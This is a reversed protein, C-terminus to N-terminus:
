SRTSPCRYNGSKADGQTRIRPWGVGRTLAFRGAVAAGYVPLSGHAGLASHATCARQCAGCPLQCTHRDLEVRLTAHTVHMLREDFRGQRRQLDPAAGKSPPLARRAARSTCRRPAGCQQTLAPSDQAPQSDAFADSLHLALVEAGSHWRHHQHPGARPRCSPCSDSGALGVSAQGQPQAAVASNSFKTPSAWSNMCQVLDGARSRALTLVIVHV